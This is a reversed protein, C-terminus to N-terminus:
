DFDLTRQAQVRLPVDLLVAECLEGVSADLPHRLEGREDGVLRPAETHPHVPRVAVVRERVRVDFVDPPEELRRMLSAPQVLAMPRGLPTRPAPGRERMVLLRTLLVVTLEVM